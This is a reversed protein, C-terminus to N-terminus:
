ATRRVRHLLAALWDQASRAFERAAVRVPRSGVAHIRQMLRHELQLAVELAFRATLERHRELMRERLDQNQVESMTRYLSEPRMRYRQLYRPITVIPHGAALLRIALEWDEYNYRLSVDYGGLERLLGTRMLCPVIV